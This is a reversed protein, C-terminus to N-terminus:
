LPRSKIKADLSRWGIRSIKPTRIMPFMPYIPPLKIEVLRYLSIVSYFLLCFASGFATKQKGLKFIRIAEFIAAFRKAIYIILTLINRCTFAHSELEKKCLVSRVADFASYTRM